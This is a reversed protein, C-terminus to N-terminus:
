RTKDSGVKEINTLCQINFGANQNSLKINDDENPEETEGVNRLEDENAMQIEESEDTDNNAIAKDWLVWCLWLRIM